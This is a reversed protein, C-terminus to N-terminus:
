STRRVQLMGDFVILLQQQQQHRGISFVGQSLVGRWAHGVRPFSPAVASLQDPDRRPAGALGVGADARVKMNTRAQACLSHESLTLFPLLHPAHNRRTLATHAKM